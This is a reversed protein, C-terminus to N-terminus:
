KVNSDTKNRKEKLMKNRIKEKAEKILTLAKEPYLKEKECDKCVYRVRDSNNKWDEIDKDSMDKFPPADVYPVGGCNCFGNLKEELTKM